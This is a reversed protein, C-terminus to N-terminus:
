TIRIEKEHSVNVDPHWEFSHTDQLLPANMVGELSGDATGSSLSDDPLYWSDLPDSDDDAVRSSFGPVLVLNWWTHDQLSYMGTAGPNGVHQPVVEAQRHAQEEESRRLAQEEEARRRKQAKVQRLALKEARQREKEGRRRDEEIRRPEAEGQLGEEPGREEDEQRRSGAHVPSNWPVIVEMGPSTREEATQERAANIKSCKDREQLMSVPYRQNIIDLM